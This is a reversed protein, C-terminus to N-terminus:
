NRLADAVPKTVFGAGLLAGAALFYMPAVGRQLFKGPDTALQHGATLFLASSALIAVGNRSQERWQDADMRDPKAADHRPLLAGGGLIVASAGVAGMALHVVASMSSDRPVLGEIADRGM